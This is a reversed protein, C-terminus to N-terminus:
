SKSRGQQEWDRDWEEVVQTLIRGCREDTGYHLEVVQMKLHVGSGVM